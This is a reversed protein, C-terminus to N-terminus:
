VLLFGVLANDYLQLDGLRSRALDNLLSSFQNLEVRYWTLM